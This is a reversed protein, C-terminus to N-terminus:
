PKESCTYQKFDKGIEYETSNEMEELTMQNFHESNGLLVVKDANCKEIEQKLKEGSAHDEDEEVHTEFFYMGDIFLLDANKYIDSEPLSKLDPIYVIKRNDQIVSFGKMPLYDNHEVPFTEVNLDQFEMRKEVLEFNVDTWNFVDEIYDQIAESGYVQVESDTFNDLNHLEPFGGFHDFHAHTPFFGDVKQTDTKILQERIDPSVDFILTTEQTEVKLGARLREPGEKCYECDCMPVPMGLPGGSGLITAKM